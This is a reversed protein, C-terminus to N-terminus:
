LAGPALLQNHGIKDLTRFQFRGDRKTQKASILKM